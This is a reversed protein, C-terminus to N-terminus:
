GFIEIKLVGDMDFFSLYAMSALYLITVGCLGAAVKELYLHKKSIPLRALFLNTGANKEEATVQGGIIIAIFCNFCALLSMYLRAIELETPVAGYHGQWVFEIGLYAIVLVAPAVLLHKFGVRLDKYFVVPAIM